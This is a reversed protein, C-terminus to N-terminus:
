EQRLNFNINNTLDHAKLVKIKCLSLLITLYKKSSSNHKKDLTKWLGVEIAKIFVEGDM